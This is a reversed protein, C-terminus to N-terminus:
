VTTLLSTVIILEALASGSVSGVVSLIGLIGTVLALCGTVRGFVGKLMAMGTMLIGVSLTVISYVAETGSALV